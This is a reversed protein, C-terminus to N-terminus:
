CMICKKIPIFTVGLVFGSALGVWETFRFKKHFEGQYNSKASIYHVAAAAFGAYLLFVASKTFIKTCDM